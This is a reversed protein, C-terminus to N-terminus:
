GEEGIGDKLGLTEALQAKKQKLKELSESLDQFAVNETSLGKELRGINSVINLASATQHLTAKELKEEDVVKNLLKLEIADLFDTKMSRYAKIDAPDAIMNLYPKLNRQVTMKTCGFYKGIDEYTMRKEIRLQLAKSIDLTKVIGKKDKLIRERNAMTNKIGYKRNQEKAPPNAWYEAEKRDEEIKIEVGRKRRHIGALRIQELKNIKDQKKKAKRRTRGNDLKKIKYLSM